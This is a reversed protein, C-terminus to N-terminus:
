LIKKEIQNEKSNTAAFLQHYKQINLEKVIKSRFNVKKMILNKKWNEKFLLQNDKFKKLNKQEM